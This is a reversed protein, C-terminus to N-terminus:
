SPGRTIPTTAPAPRTSSQSPPAISPATAPGTVPPPNDRERRRLIRRRAEHLELRQRREAREAAARREAVERRRFEDTTPRPRNVSTEIEAVASKPTKRWDGKPVVIEAQALTMGQYRAVRRGPMIVGREMLEDIIGEAKMYLGPGFVAYDIGLSELHRPYQVPKKNGPLLEKAMYVQRESFYSLIPAAPGIIRADPPTNEKIVQALEVMEGWATMGGPNRVWQDAVVRVCRVLNPLVVLSLGAFIVAGAWRPPVRRAIVILMLLWSLLMLPLVMLYYRPVTSLVLTVAVTAPVLLAWLKHRRWLLLSSGILVLSIVHTLGPVFRGGFYLGPLDMGLMKVTAAPVNDAAHALMAVAHAEYAGGLPDFGRTRPDLVLILLGVIGIAGLCTAYFKRPGTILGWVCTAVWALALIWFTPRM